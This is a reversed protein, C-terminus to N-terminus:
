DDGLLPDDAIPSLGAEEIQRRLQRIVTKLEAMRVERGTMADVLTRLKATRKAVEEELHDRHSRLAEEAQERAAIEQQAKEYLRANEIAITASTAFSELLPLDAEAFRGPTTDIAQIVGLTRNKFLLPVSIVSRITLGSQQDIGLFHRKDQTADSVITSEAHEAAWGVLGEGAALRWGLVTNRGGGTAERCVIEGTDADVLWLSCATVGLIERMMQLVTRFVQELDLTASLTQTANQLLLLERNRQKLADEMERHETIEQVFAFGQKPHGKSDRLIAASLDVWVNHGDKHIYRKIMRYHSAKNEWLPKILSWEEKLDDPHTLDAFNMNLLADKTYGVMEALAQNCDMLKGDQDVVGVGVSARQVISRFKEESLRLSEEIEKRQDIEEQLSQTRRKVEQNLYWTWALVGTLILLLAVGGWIVYRLSEWTERGEYVGFWREYIETYRGTAKLSNLGETLLQALAEDGEQVAFCYRLPQMDVSLTRLNDINSQDILYQGQIKSSLLAADHWGTSLLRLADIPDTVPVIGVDGGQTRLYDHMADDQQVLITGTLADDLSRISANDRVFLGPSVHTHPITFDVQEDRSETFYMGALVDIEERELASRMENWPGLEIQIDLNTVEGVARMLDINFGTPEGDALFEYPPYNHDGGVILKRESGQAIARQSGKVLVASLLVLLTITIISRTNSRKRQQHLRSM